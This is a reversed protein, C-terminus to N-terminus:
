HVGKVRDLVSIFPKAMGEHLLPTGSSSGSLPSSVKDQITSVRTIRGPGEQGSGDGRVESPEHERDDLATASFDNGETLRTEEGNEIDVRWLGQVGQEGSRALVLHRGDPSWPNAGFAILIPGPSELWPVGLDAVKRQAGGLPPILYVATGGGRDALFAIQRGDPSWRPM